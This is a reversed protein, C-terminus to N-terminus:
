YNFIYIPTILTDVLLAYNCTLAIGCLVMGIYAMWKIYLQKMLLHQNNEEIQQHILKHTAFSFAISFAPAAVVSLAIAIWLMTSVSNNKIVSIALLAGWFATISSYHCNVTTLIAFTILMSVVAVILEDTGALSISNDHLIILGMGITMSILLCIVFPWIRMIDAIHIDSYSYAIEKWGFCIGLSMILIISVTLM